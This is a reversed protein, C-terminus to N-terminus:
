FKKASIKEMFRLKQQKCYMGIVIVSIKTDALNNLTEGHCSTDQQKAEKTHQLHEGKFFYIALQNLLYFQNVIIVKNRKDTRVRGHILLQAIMRATLASRQLRSYIISVLTVARHVIM